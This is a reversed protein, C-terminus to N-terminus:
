MSSLILLEYAILGLYLGVFTALISRARWLNFVVLNGVAILLIAPVATLTMKIITFTLVSHQLLTNMVPNVETGGNALITLTFLSDMISLIMLAIGMSVAGADLNDLMPYRRDDTRRGEMRRPSNLCQRLTTLTYTRRELDARKDIAISSNM